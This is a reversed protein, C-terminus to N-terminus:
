FRLRLIGFTDEEKDVEKHKKLNDQNRDLIAGSYKKFFMYIFLIIFARQQNQNVRGSLRDVILPVMTYLIHCFCAIVHNSCINGM